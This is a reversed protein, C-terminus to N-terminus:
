RHVSNTWSLPALDGPAPADRQAEFLGFLHPHDHAGLEQLAHCWVSHVLNSLLCDTAASATVARSADFSASARVIIRSRASAVFTCEADLAGGVWSWTLRLRWGLWGVRSSEFKWRGVEFAMARWMGRQFDAIRLRLAPVVFTCM